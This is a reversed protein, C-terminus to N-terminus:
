EQTVTFDQGNFHFVVSTSQIKVVRAGDIEDGERILRNNVFASPSAVGTMIAGVKLAPRQVARVGGTALPKRYRVFPDRMEEADYVYFSASTSDETSVLTDVKALTSKTRRINVQPANSPGCSFLFFAFPFLLWIVIQGIRSM